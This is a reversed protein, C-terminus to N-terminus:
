AIPYWLSAVHDWTFLSGTTAAIAASTGTAVHSTGSAAFTLTNTGRNVVTAVQGDYSGAQLILGTFAAACTVPCYAQAATTITQGNATISQATTGAGGVALYMPPPQVQIAYGYWIRGNITELVFADTASPVASMAPTVNNEWIVTPSANTPTANVPWTVSWMTGTAAQTLVIMIHQAAGLTAGTPTLSITTNATLVTPLFYDGERTYINM